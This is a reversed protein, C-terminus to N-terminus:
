LKHAISTAASDASRAGANGRSDSLSRPIDTSLQMVRNREKGSRLATLLPELGLSFVTQTGKVKEIFPIFSLGSRSVGRAGM